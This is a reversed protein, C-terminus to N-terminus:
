LSLHWSRNGVINRKEEKKGTNDRFKDEELVYKDVQWKEEIDEEEIAKETVNGWQRM